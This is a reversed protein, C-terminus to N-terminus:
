ERRREKLSTGTRVRGSPSRRQDLAGHFFEIIERVAHPDVCCLVTRGVREMEILGARNLEKIHHSVTSAAIELHKGLDGVCIRMEDPGCKEQAGSGCSALRLFIEARNRNSLAAFMRSYQDIKRNRYNSMCRIVSFPGLNDLGRAMSTESIASDSGSSQADDTLEPM